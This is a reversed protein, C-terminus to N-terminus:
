EHGEVLIVDSDANAHRIKMIEMYEPDNYAAKATEYSDFEIVVHREKSQGELLQSQGGRVLYNAGYRDGLVSGAAGVYPAYGDADQVTIHAIIYGKAM